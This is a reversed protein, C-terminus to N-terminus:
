NGFEDYTITKELLTITTGVGVVVSGGEVIFGTFSDKRTNLIANSIQTQEHEFDEQYFPVGNAPYVVGAIRM